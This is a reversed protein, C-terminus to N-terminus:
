ESRVARVHYGIYKLSSNVNGGSFTITWSTIKGNDYPSSTWYQGWSVFPKNSGIQETKKPINPFINLNISPEYCQREVISKLEKINPLRYGNGLNKAVTLAQQWTHTTATGTCTNGDWTQGISCRQWILGTVMDKVEAGGSILEFRSDPTTAPINVTRCTQAYTNLSIATLALIYTISKIFNFQFIKM